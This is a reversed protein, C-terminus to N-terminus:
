GIQNYINAVATTDQPTQTYRCKRTKTPGSSTETQGATERSGGEGEGSIRPGTPTHTHSHTHSNTLTLTHTYTHTHSNTNHTQTHTRTHTQSHTHSHTLTYTHPNPHAYMVHLLICIVIDSVLLAFLGSMASSGKSIRLKEKELLSLKEEAAALKGVLKEDQVVVPAM